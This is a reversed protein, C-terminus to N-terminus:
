LAADSRRGRCSGPGAPRGCRGSRPSPAGAPRSRGPARRSSTASTSRIQRRDRGAASSLPATTSRAITAIAIAPSIPTPSTAHYKTMRRRVRLPARTASAVRARSSPARGCSRGSDDDPLTRPARAVSANTRTKLKKRKRTTSASGTAVSKRPRFRVSECRSSSRAGTRARRSSARATRRAVDLLRRLEVEAARVCRVLRDDVLDPGRRRCVTASTPTTSSGRSPTRSGRDPDRRRPPPCASSEAASEPEITVHDIGSKQSPISRSANKATRSPRTGSRRCRPGPPRVGGPDRSQRSWACPM